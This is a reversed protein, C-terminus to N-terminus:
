PGNIYRRVIAKLENRRVIATIGAELRNAVAKPTARNLAFYSPSGKAYPLLHVARDAGFGNQGLQWAMGLDTDVVVDVRGTLFKRINSENSDAFDMAERKVGRMWLEHVPSDGVVVGVRYRNLQIYEVADVRHDKLRWIWADGPLTPGMPGLWRFDTEREPTRTTPYVLTNPTLKATQYARAWPLLELRCDLRAEKCAQRLLDAAIGVVKGEREFTYPPWEASYAVLDAAQPAVCLAAFSLLPLRLARFM